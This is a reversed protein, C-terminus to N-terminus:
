PSSHAFCALASLNSLLSLAKEPRIVSPAGLSLALLKGCLQCLSQPLAGCDGSNM